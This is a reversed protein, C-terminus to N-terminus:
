PSEITLVLPTFNAKTLDRGRFNFSIPSSRMRYYLLLHLFSGSLTRTLRGTSVIWGCQVRAFCLLAFIILELCLVLNIWFYFLLMWSNIIVGALTHVLAKGSSWDFGITERFFQFWEVVVWHETVFFVTALQFYGLDLEIKTLLNERNSVTVPFHFQVQFISCM